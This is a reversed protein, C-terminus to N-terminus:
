GKPTTDDALFEAKVVDHPILIEASPGLIKYITDNDAKGRSGGVFIVAHEKPGFNRRNREAVLDAAERSLKREVRAPIGVKCGLDAAALAKAKRISRERKSGYELRGYPAEGDPPGLVKKLRAYDAPDSSTVHFRDDVDSANYMTHLEYKPM